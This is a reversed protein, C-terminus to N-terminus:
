SATADISESVVRSLHTSLRPGHRELGLKRRINKRHFAVTGPSIFLAEAIESSTKGARILSAIERERLTLSQGEDAHISQAFPQMVERLNMIATDLFAAVPMRYIHPAIRELLPLVMQELNSLVTREFEERDRNRQELIVRLAINSEELARALTRHETIDTAFVFCRLSGAVHCPVFSAIVSKALGGIHVETELTVPGSAIERVAAQAVDDWYDSIRKGILATRDTGLFSLAASNADLYTGDQGLMFVPNVAKAFLTEYLEASELVVRATEREVTIDRMVGLMHAPRGSEDRLTLGRDSVLVYSGDSHRLRYEAVFQGGQEAAQEVESVARERDDPHLRAKWWEFSSFANQDEGLFAGLQASFEVVGTQIHWDYSADFLSDILAHLRECRPTTCRPELRACDVAQDCPASSLAIDPVSSM